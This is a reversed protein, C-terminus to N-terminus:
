PRTGAVSKLAPYLARYQAYIEDYRALLNARPEITAGPRVM